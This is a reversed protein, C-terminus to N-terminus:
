YRHGSISLINGKIELIGTSACIYDLSSTGTSTFNSVPDREDQRGLRAAMERRRVSRHLHECATLDRSEDRFNQISKERAYSSCKACYREHKYHIKAVSNVNRGANNSRREESQKARSRRRRRRRYFNTVKEYIGASDEEHATTVKLKLCM